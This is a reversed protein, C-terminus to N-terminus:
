KYVSPTIFVPPVSLNLRALGLKTDNNIEMAKQKTFSYEMEPNVYDSRESTSYGDFGALYVNEIKLQDLLKLLMILPNDYFQAQEDILTQFQLTFDFRNTKPSVNSTGILKVDFDVVKLKSSLEVYRRSNSIFLYDSKFADPLFNVTIVVPKEQEIFSRIQPEEDKVSNGSGILLIKQGKWLENLQNIDAQDNFAVNQNELYLNEIYTADFLLRKEPAIEGLISYISAVSLTRKGMLFSTYNPHCKQLASIFYTLSYGWLPQNYLPMVSSVITELIDGLHYCQEIHDNIYMALLELPANGAGKGMGYLTGDVILERHQPPNELLSICNAYALQFNNHSHYGIRIDPHLQQDAAGFYHNLQEKHLLGYTDVVSFAYPKLDNVLRLLDSFEEDSYSTISVSQVFVKYGLNQLEGCFAIAAAAKDKKFIVRIGDMFSEDAPQLDEISCTGFDIMGVIMAQKSELKEFSQNVAHGNPFITRNKDFSRSNNIFGIEIIDINARVLRDFVNIIHDYGFKWDNLYGGDRLTCDLLRIKSM